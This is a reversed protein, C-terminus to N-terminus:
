IFSLICPRLFAILKFKTLLAVIYVLDHVCVLMFPAASSDM